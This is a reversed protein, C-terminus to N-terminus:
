GITVLPQGAAVSDGAKVLVRTVTGSKSAIVPSKMKMADLLLLREGQKVAQGPVVDVLVVTGSLQAVEDGPSGSHAPGGAPASSPLTPASAAMTGAVTAAGLSSPAVGGEILEEVTVNYERGNVTIKFQKLM